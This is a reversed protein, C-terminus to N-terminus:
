SEHDRQEGIPYPIPSPPSISFLPPRRSASVEFYVCDAALVLDIDALLGADIEAGWDLEAVHVNSSVNNHEVNRKMLDLLPRLTLSRAPSRSKAPAHHTFPLPPGRAPPVAAALRPVCLQDTVWIDCEKELLGAAIGVLGTGSGLELV